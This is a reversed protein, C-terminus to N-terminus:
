LNRGAWQNLGKTAAGPQVRHSREIVGLSLAFPHTLQPDTSGPVNELNSLSIANFLCCHSPSDFLGRELRTKHMKITSAITPGTKKECGSCRPWCIKPLTRANTVNTTRPPTCRPERIRSRQHPTRSTKPMTYRASNANLSPSKRGSWNQNKILGM